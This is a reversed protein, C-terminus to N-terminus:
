CHPFPHDRSIMILTSYLLSLSTFNLVLFIALVPTSPLYSTLFFFAFFELSSFITSPAVHPSTPWSYNLLRQNVHSCLCCKCHSFQHHMGAYVFLRRLSHTVHWPLQFVLAPLSQLFGQPSSPLMSGPFCDSNYLFNTLLCMKWAWSFVHKNLM